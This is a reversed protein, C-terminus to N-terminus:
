KRALWIGWGTALLCLAVSLFVYLVAKFYNGNEILNWTDISFSSFTTFGGLFGILITGRWVASTTYRELLLTALIGMLLCGLVNVTLIGYPFNKGLVNHIGQALVFRAICGIAGAGAIGLLQQWYNM